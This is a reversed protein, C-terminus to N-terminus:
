GSGDRRWVIRLIGALLNSVRSAFPRLSVLPPPSPEQNVPRAGPLAQRRFEGSNNRVCFGVLLSYEYQYFRGLTGEECGM